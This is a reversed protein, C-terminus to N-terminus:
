ICRNKREYLAEFAYNKYEKSNIDFFNEKESHKAVLDFHGVIDFDGYKPLLALNKYYEKAYKMGDGDFYTDIVNKVTKADRDFGVYEDNIKFYHSAGIVYDYGNKECDSYMEFELGSFIEITDKYKEKLFSLEKKYEETEELSMCISPKFFMYSHGSFGISKYGKEIAYCVTEELSDKGDCYTSHTHLNQTYIM